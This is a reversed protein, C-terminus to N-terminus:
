AASAPPAEERRGVGGGGRGGSRRLRPRPRMRCVALRRDVVRALRRRPADEGAHPQADRRNVVPVIWSLLLKRVLTRAARARRRRRCRRVALGYTRRRRGGDRLSAAAAAGLLVQRRGDDRVLPIARAAVLAQTFASTLAADGLEEWTLVHSKHSVKRRGRRGGAANTGPQASVNRSPYGSRGQPAEKREALAGGSQCLSFFASCIM